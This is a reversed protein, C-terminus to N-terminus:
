KSLERLTNRYRRMLGNAVDMQRDFADDFPTLSIGEPGRIVVLKDGEGVGMAELEAKGLIVGLSNGIRRVTVSKTM